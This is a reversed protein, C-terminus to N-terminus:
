WSKLVKFECLEVDKTCGNGIFSLLIGDLILHADELIVICRGNGYQILQVEKGGTFKMSYM